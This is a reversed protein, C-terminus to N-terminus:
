GHGWSGVAGPAWTDGVFGGTLKEWVSERVSWPVNRLETLFLRCVLCDEKTANDLCFDINDDEINDDDTVIHCCGGCAHGPLEYVARFLVALAIEQKTLEIM